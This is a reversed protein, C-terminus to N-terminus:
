VPSGDSWISRSTRSATIWRVSSASDSGMPSLTVTCNKDLPKGFSYACYSCTRAAVIFQLLVCDTNAAANIPQTINGGDKRYPMMRCQGTLPEGIELCM